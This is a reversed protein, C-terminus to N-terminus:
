DDGGGLGVALEGFKQSLNPVPFGVGDCTVAFRDGRQRRRRGLHLLFAFQRLLAQHAMQSGLTWHVYTRPSALFQVFVIWLSPRWRYWHAPTHPLGSRLLEDVAHTASRRFVQARRSPLAPVPAQLITGREQAYPFIASPRPTRQSRIRARRM